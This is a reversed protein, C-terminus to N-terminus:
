EGETLSNWLYLTFLSRFPIFKAAAKEIWANDPIESLRYVNKVARYLGSDGLPLCDAHGAGRMLIYNASWIGIGRINRLRELAASYELDALSELYRGNAVAGRALGILYEAKRSSFQLSKLAGTTADSVSEPEPFLYYVNGNFSYRRGFKEQLRMKLLNAFSLNVQQSMIAWAAAEFVTPTLIPKLGRYKLALKNIVAVKEARKYFGGLDLGGSVIRRAASVVKNGSIRPGELLEWNVRGLPSEIGGTFYIEALIISNDVRLLRRLSPHRDNETTEFRSKVSFKLSREFDFPPAVVFDRQPM